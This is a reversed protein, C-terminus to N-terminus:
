KNSRLDNVNNRMLAPYLMTDSVTIPTINATQFYYVHVCFQRILTQCNELLASYSRGSTNLKAHLARIM